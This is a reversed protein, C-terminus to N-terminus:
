SSGSVRQRLQQGVRYAWIPYGFYLAALVLLPVSGHLVSGYAAASAIRLLAQQKMHVM